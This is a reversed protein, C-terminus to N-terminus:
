DRKNLVKVDKVPIDIIIDEPRINQDVCFDLIKIKKGSPDVYYSNKGGDFYRSRSFNQYKRNKLMINESYSNNRIQRIAEVFSM